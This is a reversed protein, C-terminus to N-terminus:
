KRVRKCKKPKDSWVNVAREIRENEFEIRKELDDFGM